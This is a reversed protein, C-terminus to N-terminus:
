YKVSIPTGGVSTSAIYSMNRSAPSRREPYRLLKNNLSKEPLRTSYAKVMADYRRM